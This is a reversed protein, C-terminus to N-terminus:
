RSRSQALDIDLQWLREGIVDLFYLRNPVDASWGLASFSYVGHRQWVVTYQLGSHVDIVRLSEGARGGRGLYYYPYATALYDGNPSPILTHWYTGDGRWVFQLSRSDTDIRWLQQCLDFDDRRPIGVYVSKGDVSAGEIGFPPGWEGSRSRTSSSMVVKPTWDPATALYV